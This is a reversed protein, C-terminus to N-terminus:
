RLITAPNGVMVKNEETSKIVVAGLGITSNAGINVQDRIISSSIYTGEGVTVSGCIVAGAIITCNKHIQCNHAIHCLNDIKCGDDIITDDITGRVICTNSGVHVNNGIKVGGYHVIMTKDGNAEQIYGFGDEGIVTGSQITCNYGINVKNTIVVNSGIVTNKGIIIEGDIVCNNGIVVNDELKVMNGIYTNRGIKSVQQLNEQYLENLLKFFVYRPQKVIIMNILNDSELKKSCVILAISVELELSKLEKTWTISGSVYNCLSSFGEVIYEKDGIFEYEIKNTDLYKLIEEISYRKM